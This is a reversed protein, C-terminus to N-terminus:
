GWPSDRLLDRGRETLRLAEDQGLFSVTASYALDPLLRPLREARGGVVERRVIAEAGGLAALAARGPQVELEAYEWGRELMAVLVKHGTEYISFVSPPSMQRAGVYGFYAYSPKRAMLELISKVGLLASDLEARDALYSSSVSAVVESLIANEAAVACAEKDAFLTRFTDEGVGAREVINEVTTDRYGREAALETLALLVRERSSGYLTETAVPTM